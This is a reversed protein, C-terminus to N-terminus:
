LKHKKKATGQLQEQEAKMKEIFKTRTEIPLQQWSKKAALRWRERLYKKDENFITQLEAIATNLGEQIKNDNNYQNIISKPLSVKPENMQQAYLLSYFINVLDNKSPVKRNEQHYQSLAKSIFEEQLSM